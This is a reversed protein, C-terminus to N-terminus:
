AVPNYGAIILGGLILITLTAYILCPIVNSRMLRGESGITGCTACASVINNVCVMNGMAGGLVQMALILMTPLGLRVAAAYQLTSFLTNSVTASGSIFAGIVGIIPAVIIYAKGFLDALGNAMVILMSEMGSNNYAAGSNKFLQVMAIGFLLAIAAGGVMSGTEKWAAKVSESKMKHLPIIILAVLIFPLIGPNWAWKFAWNVEVGFITKLGIAFPATSVNLIGKIGIQPIRTVVLIIAILGYPVWAMVPSINSEVKMSEDEQVATTAKWHEAWESQAPFEFKSKPVLIGKKATVICIVLAVLGGILSPFEPGLFAACILYPVCFAIASMLIYPIVEVAYKISKNKGYMMCMMTVTIFIIIPCIIASPIAAWKTLGLKWAETDTVGAAALESSVMNFATTAPTGVAGFPVPTSNLILACMAACLPPFGVSILLPAALAAPTGFGAAGEIFAGFMFGIIIMQIRPDDSINTFMSNIVKMAGSHKLTNMILIAGLIIVITDISTLFGAITHAAITILNMKWALLCVISTILWALPLAIKAPWNFGAMVIITVIIPIFAIIAYM